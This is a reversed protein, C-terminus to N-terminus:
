KKLINDINSQKFKASLDGSLEKASEADTAEVLIKVRSENGLQRIKAKGKASQYIYYKEYSSGKKAGIEEILPRIKEPPCDLAVIRRRLSFDNQMSLLEEISTNSLVLVSLLKVCLFVADFNWINDLFLHDSIDPALDNEILRYVTRQYQRSKEEIVGSADEHVVVDRGDAFALECLVARIRDSSYFVDNEICYMDTGEANILFQIGESSDSTGLKKLFETMYDMIIPNECEIHINKNKISCNLLKHLSATYAASLLHMKFLDVGTDNENFDFTSYRFNNNVTRATKPSFPLGNKGFFSFHVETDASSIFVFSDLSCYASYFYAQAKFIHEFDYCIRGCARIGAICATKYLDATYSNDSGIGIRETEKVSALAQGLKVADSLSFQSYAKGTVGFIDPEIKEPTEYFLDCSIVSEAPIKRGPWIRNGSVVRSFRGIEVGYGLIAHKEIVCNSRLRANDDIISNVVDSGSEICVDNGLICGQLICHDGMTLKNGIVTDPGITNNSGLVVDAGILCPAIITNGKDDTCDETYLAGGYPFAISKGHLLESSLTLYTEFEGVDGWFGETQFCMFSRKEKILKPFLQYSFDYPTDVPILDLVSGNMFYIGTNILNSAANEWTPKEQFSLINQEDDTIIVGYERPDKVKVGVVTVDALSLAHYKQAARLDINFINDGSLVLITDDDKSICKKVGGATGLPKDEICYHLDVDFHKRECFDIIDQAKYGLSLYVDRIDAEALRSIILELIPTNLLKILPKPTIETLPRLRSGTGGCLIVAKM